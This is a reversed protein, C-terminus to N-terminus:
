TPTASTPTLGPRRERPSSDPDATHGRSHHRDMLASVAQLLPLPKSVRLVYGTGDPAEVFVAPGVPRVVINRARPRDAASLLRVGVIDAAPVIVSRYTPSKIRLEDDFVLVKRQVRGVAAMIALTGVFLLAAAAAALLPFSGTALIWYQAAFHAAAVGLRLIALSAILVVAAAMLRAALPPRLRAIYRIRTMDAPRFALRRYLRAAGFIIAAALAVLAAAPLPLPRRVSLIRNDARFVRAALAAISDPGVTSYYAGVDPFGDHLDPRYFRDTAWSRLAAPSANEVRLRRNLADRDAYFALTDAAPDALKRLEDDLIERVLGEQGPNMDASIVFYAAPGRIVTGATVSYIAKAEGRRLREMLRHRLLDEMFILRVQDLGSLDHVRYRLAVRTTTGSHWQFLRTEGHRPAVRVEATPAPRWPLAAFTSDLAPQLEERPLGSVIVLTMETPTYYKEHFRRLDGATVAALGTQQSAGREEQADIGFERRWFPAPLLIPHNLIRTPGGAFPYTTRAGLEVAVPGRNRDVLEDSFTRPAVVDHLWHLGWAAHDTAISLPYSTYRAGTVGNHSGGRSTLERALEAETRGHRDSLLVHELLHATQERGPPDHDRGYPIIVAMSTLSAGPLHGYWVRFGNPLRYSEFGAFPNPPLPEGSVPLPQASAAQALMLLLCGSLM